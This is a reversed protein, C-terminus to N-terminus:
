PRRRRRERSSACEARGTAHRVGRRTEGGGPHSAKRTFADGPCSSCTAPRVSRPTIFDPPSTPDRCDSFVGRARNSRATSSSACAPLRATWEPSPPGDKLSTNFASTSKAARAVVITQQEDSRFDDISGPAAGSFNGNVSRCLASTDRSGPPLRDWARPRTGAGGAAGSARGSIDDACQVIRVLVCRLGDGDRRECLAPGAHVAHSLLPECGAVCPRSHRGAARHTNRAPVAVTEETVSQSLTANGM